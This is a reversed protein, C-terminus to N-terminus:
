LNLKDTGTSSCLDLIWSGESAYILILDKYLSVPKEMKYNIDADQVRHKKGAPYKFVNSVGQDLKHDGCHGSIFPFIEEILKNFDTFFSSCYHM